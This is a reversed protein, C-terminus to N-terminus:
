AFHLYVGNWGAPDYRRVVPLRRSGPASLVSLLIRILGLALNAFAHAQQRDVTFRFHETYFAISRRVDAVQYRVGHFSTAVGHDADPTTSSHLSDTMVGGEAHGGSLRRSSLM